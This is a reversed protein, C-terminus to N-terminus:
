VAQVITSPPVLHSWDTWTSSGASAQVRHWLLHDLGTAYVELRGDLLRIVQPATILGGGLSVWDGYTTGGAASQARHWIAGDTGWGVLEVRGDSNLEVTVARM